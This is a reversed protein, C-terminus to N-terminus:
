MAKTRQLSTQNFGISLKLNENILIQAGAFTCRKLTIAESVSLVEQHETNVKFQMWEMENTQEEAQIQSPKRLQVTPPLPTDDTDERSM